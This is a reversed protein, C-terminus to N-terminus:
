INDTNLNDRILRRLRRALRQRDNIDRDISLRRLRTVQRRTLSKKFNVRKDRLLNKNKDIFSRQQKSLSAKLLKSREIRSLNKNKLISIQEASLGQKFDEKSKDIFLQQEKLMAKQEITLNQLVNKSQESNQAFVSFTTM